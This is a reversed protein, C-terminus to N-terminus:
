GDEAEGLDKMEGLFGRLASLNPALALVQAMSVDGVVNAFGAEDEGVFLAAVGHIRDENSRLFVEVRDEDDRVSVLTFWGLTKLAAAVEDLGARASESGGEDLDFVRARVAEIDSIVASLQENEADVFGTLATLTEQDFDADFTVNGGLASEFPTFDAYGPHTEIHQQSWAAPVLVVLLVTFVTRVLTPRM